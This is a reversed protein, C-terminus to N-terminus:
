ANWYLLWTDWQSGAYLAIALAGGAAALRVLLQLRQPDVVVVRPGQRTVVVLERRTLSRFAVLLNALLFGLVIFFTGAIIWSRAALIRVFVHQYGLEAFWLWDTYFEVLTPVFFLLVLAAALLQIFRVRFVDFGRVGLKTM